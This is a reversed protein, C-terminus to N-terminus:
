LEGEETDYYIAGIGFGVLLMIISLVWGTIWWHPSVVLSVATM